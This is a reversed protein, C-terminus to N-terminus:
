NERAIVEYACGSLVAGETAYIEGTSLIFVAEFDDSLRWFEAGQELGMVFLATSLADATTGDHCIVTVSTLGSEAPRGTRPDLIHHYRVGELDFYRQYDGSTVISTTGTVHLIGAYEGGWPSQIAIQWPIGDPKQGYTQINGGLNLVARDVNLRSLLQVAQQGTYGKVAAGLNWDGAALAEQIQQQDPVRYEGSLFGWCDILQGLRPDFAGDTRASLTLTQELFAHQEGTVAAEGRNLRSLFSNDETASWDAELQQVLQEVQALATEADDGWINFHMYTDMAWYDAEVARTGGCGCLLVAVLILCMLRKM